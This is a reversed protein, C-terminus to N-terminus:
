FGDCFCERRAFSPVFYDKSDQKTHDWHQEVEKAVLFVAELPLVDDQAQPKVLFLVFVSKVLADLDLQTTNAIPYKQLVLLFVGVLLEVM